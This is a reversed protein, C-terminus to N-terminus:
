EAEAGEAREEGQEVEVRHWGMYFVKLLMRYLRWFSVFKKSDELIEKTISVKYLLAKLVGVWWVDRLVM